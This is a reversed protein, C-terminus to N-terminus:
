EHIIGKSRPNDKLWNAPPPNLDTQLALKSLPTPDSLSSYKVVATSHVVGSGPGQDGTGSHGTHGSHGPTLKARSSPVLELSSRRETMMDINIESSPKSVVSSTTTSPIYPMPIAYGRNPLTWSQKSNQDTM